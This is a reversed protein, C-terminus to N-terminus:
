GKLSGIMVGKVFYRQLFPYTFIIPGIALMITAYKIVERMAIQDGGMEAIYQEDIMMEEMGRMEGMMLIERLVMQLPYLERKRLYVLAPFWSNWYGVLSFLAIVALVAKSLPMILRFLITFDNAGDMYASESISLSLQSFGTRLIIISWTSICSPIFMVWMTDLMSLNRINIYTPILGGGFFMTFIIILLFVKKFPWNPKVLAYATMSMLLGGLLTGLGAYIITNKYASGLIPNRLAFGYAQLNFGKPWLMLGKNHMLYESSSFSAFLVHLFPLLTVLVLVLMLMINIVDFVNDGLTKKNNM